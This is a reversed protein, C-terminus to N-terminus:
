RNKVIPGGASGCWQKTLGLRYLFWNLKFNYGQTLNAISPDILIMTLRLSLHFVAIYLCYM